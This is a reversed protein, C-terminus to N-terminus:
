PEESQLDLLRALKGVLARVLTGAMLLELVKVLTGALLWALMKVLTCALVRVLQGALM